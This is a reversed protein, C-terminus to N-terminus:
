RTLSPVTYTVDKDFWTIETTPVPEYIYSLNTPETSAEGSISWFISQHDLSPRWSVISTLSMM